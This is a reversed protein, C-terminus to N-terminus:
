PSTVSAVLEPAFNDDLADFRHIFERGREPISVYVGFEIMVDFEDARLLPYETKAKLWNILPCDYPSRRVGQVGERVLFEAIAEPTSPLSDLLQEVETKLQEVTKKTM